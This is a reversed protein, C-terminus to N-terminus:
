NLQLELELAPYKQEETIPIRNDTAQVIFMHRDYIVFRAADILLAGFKSVISYVDNVITIDKNYLGSTISKPRSTSQIYAWPKYADVAGSTASIETTKLM